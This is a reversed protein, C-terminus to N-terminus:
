QPSGNRSDRQGQPEGEDAHTVEEPMVVNMAKLRATLGGGFHIRLGELEFLPVESYHRGIQRRTRIQQSTRGTGACDASQREVARRRGTRESGGGAPCLCACGRLTGILFIAGRIRKQRDCCRSGILQQRETLMPIACLDMGDAGDREHLVSM